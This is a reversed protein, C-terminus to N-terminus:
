CHLEADLTALLHEVEEPGDVAVDGVVRESAAIGMGLPHVAALADADTVDDGVYVPFVPGARAELREVIWRVAAGKNWSTNPLLEVVSSGPLLRFRGENLGNRAADM